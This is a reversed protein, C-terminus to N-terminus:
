RSTTRSWTTCRGRLAPGNRWRPWRRRSTASASWAARGARGALRAPEASHTGGGRGPARHLRARHPLCLVPRQQSGPELAGHGDRRRSRPHGGRRRRPAMRVRAGRHLARRPPRCRGPGPRRRAVPRLGGRCHGPLGDDAGSSPLGPPLDPSGRVLPESTGNARRGLGLVPRLARGGPGYGGAHRLPPGRRAAVALHALSRRGPSRAARAAPTGARANRSRLWEPYLHRSSPAMPDKTGLRSRLRLAAQAQGQPPIWGTGM